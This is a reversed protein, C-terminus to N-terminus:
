NWLKEMQELSKGKTEPVRRCVFLIALVCILAFIFYPLAGNFSDTNLQSKNLIPFGNTVLASGLCQVGIVISMALGRVNNPFIEALMVWVVPGMSMAFSGVFIMVGIVSIMGLHQNYIALGLAMLGIFMGATGMILLPKRGWSDITKIAVITFMVNVVGVWLQPKLAEEPGYNLAQKFIDASYILVAVIGTSQQFIALMIGVFLALLLSKKFLLKAAPISTEALSNAIENLESDIQDTNTTLQTLVEKAQARKGRLMLWRPSHPVRFLLGIYILTPILVSWLMLRWGYDVWSFDQVTYSNISLSIIFPFLFGIVMALQHFTVMRGRINSPSIEAIYMPATTAIMGIGLGLIIRYSTLENLSDAAGSGISAIVFMVGALILTFKRSIATTLYGASMAGLFCGYGASSVAWGQQASTLNFYQTFYWQTTAMTSADYGMLFGGISAILAIQLVSLQFRDSRNEIDM